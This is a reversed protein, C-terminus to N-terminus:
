NAIPWYVGFRIRQRPLPYDPVLLNGIQVTTGSFINEYAFFFTAGRVDGEAGIDMAGNQGVPSSTDTPLVLLGSPTHLRLGNMDAWARGRVYLDLDLDKQFLLAKVGVQATAWQGPVSREWLVGDAGADDASAEMMTGHIRGYLGRRGDDRVHLSLTVATRSRTGNMVRSTMDPHDTGEFHAIANPEQVHSAKAELRIADATWGAQLRLTRQEQLPISSLATLGDTGVGFGSWELVSIRRADRSASGSVDFPGVRASASARALWWTHQSGDCVGATIEYRESSALSMSAGAQTRASLADDWASGGFAGDRLVHADISLRGLGVDRSVSSLLQWRTTWGRVRLINGRFDLTQSTRLARLTGNWGYRDAEAGIELDNRVTRRRASPDSVTAGLRQYISEYTAGGFPVVGAHAGVARRSAVDQIWASWTAAHVAIRATIQRARRLESGDYEGEAGAGAYGFVTQLRYGTSDTTARYRNQVHLAQVAQLGDGASEYRVRTVPQTSALGDSTMIVGGSDWGQSALFAIPVMDFRPRSVLLDEMSRGDWMLTTTNPDSGHVSIGNPWGAADFTWSFVGPAWGLAISPDSNHAQIPLRTADPTGTVDLHAEMSQVAASQAVTTDPTAPTSQEQANAPFLYLASIVVGALTACLNSARIGSLRM